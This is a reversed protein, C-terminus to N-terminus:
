GDIFERLSLYEEACAPCGDLHARMGPIQRDAERRRGLARRLPRARRLVARLQARAEAPGLLRALLRERRRRTRTMM